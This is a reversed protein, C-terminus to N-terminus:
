VALVNESSLNQALKNVHYIWDDDRALPRFALILFDFKINLLVSPKSDIETRVTLM